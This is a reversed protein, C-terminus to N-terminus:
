RRVLLALCAIGAAAVFGAAFPRAAILQAGIFLGGFMGGSLVM